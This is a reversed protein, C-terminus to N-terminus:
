AAALPIKDPLQIRGQRALRRGLDAIQQRAGEIDSLRIPGPHDLKSRVAKAEQAPFRRLIREILEPPTGVLATMAMEPEAAQFVAALGADDLRALDDFSLAPLRLSEALPGDHAALGDLIQEALQDGSAELIGTVAKLGAVRRRQMHVQQSLRSELAREVEHLIEPDTEELDILRHIVDVQLAPHLRALVGGAQEPPLHSLVLAITQPREGALVRALKEGEADQLFRFPRPTTPPIHPHWVRGGGAPLSRSSQSSPFPTPPVALKRAVSWEQPATGADLEVGPPYEEPREDTPCKCPPGFPRPGTRFFEEIVKRQERPDIRGLGIVTQRVRRAQEPGLVQLMAETAARDLSAVLIAAKRIGQDEPNM